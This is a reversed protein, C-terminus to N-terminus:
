RCFKFLFLLGILFGSVVEGRVFNDPEHHDYDIADDLEKQAVMLLRIDM